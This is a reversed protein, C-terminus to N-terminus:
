RKLTACLTNANARRSGGRDEGRPDRSSRQRDLSPRCVYRRKSHAEMLPMGGEKQPAPLAIEESAKGKAPKPRPQGMMGLVLKTFSSM